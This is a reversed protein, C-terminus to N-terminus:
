GARDGADALTSDIGAAFLPDREGIRQGDRLNILVTAVVNREIRCALFAEARSAFEEVDRTLEFRLESETSM